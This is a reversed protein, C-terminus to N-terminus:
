ARKRTSKKYAKKSSKLVKSIQSSRSAKAIPHSFSEELLKVIYENASMKKNKVYSLLRKHLIKTMRLPINGSVEIMSEPLPIEEGEEHLDELHLEVAELAHTMAEDATSGHTQVGILEPVTALFCQDEPSWEVIIKYKGKLNEM